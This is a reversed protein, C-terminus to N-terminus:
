GLGISPFVFGPILTCICSPFIYLYNVRLKVCFNDLFSKKGQPHPRQARSTSHTRFHFPSPAGAGGGPCFFKEQNLGVWASIEILKSAVLEFRSGSDSSVAPFGSKQCFKALIIKILSFFHKLIIKINTFKRWEFEFLRKGVAERVLQPGCRGDRMLSSIERRCSVAEWPSRSVCGSSSGRSCGCLARLVPPRM